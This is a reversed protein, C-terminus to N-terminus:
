HGYNFGYRFSRKSPEHTLVTDFFGCCGELLAAEYEAEEEANGVEALRFNDQCDYEEEAIRLAEAVLFLEIEQGYSAATRM